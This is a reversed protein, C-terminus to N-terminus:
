QGLLKRYKPAVDPSQGEAWKWTEEYIGNFYAEADAESFKIFEMGEDTAKQRAAVAQKDWDVQYQKRQDILIDMLLEQLNESMDNWADLNMIVVNTSNGWGHTVYWDTVEELGLGKLTPFPMALGDIVGRELGTYLEPYPITTVDAGLAKFYPDYEPLSRLLVGKFDTRPDEIKKNIIIKYDVNPTVRGLYHVNHENYYGEVM